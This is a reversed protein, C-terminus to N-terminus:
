KSGGGFSAGLENAIRGVSVFRVADPNIAEDYTELKVKAFEAPVGIYVRLRKFAVRGRPKDYPLMGRVTRKVIQDPMRPFHPGKRPHNLRHKEIYHDIVSKPEGLVIVKEANVVRVEVGELLDKAVKSALRGLVLSEGNVVKM